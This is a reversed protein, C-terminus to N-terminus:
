LLDVQYYIATLEQGYGSQIVKHIQEKAETNKQTSKTFTKDTVPLEWQYNESTTRVPLEWKYNERTPRVPLNQSSM